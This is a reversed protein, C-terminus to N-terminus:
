GGTEVSFRAWMIGSEATQAPGGRSSWKFPAAARRRASRLSSGTGSRAEMDAIDAMREDDARGAGAFRHQQRQHRQLEAAVGAGLDEGEVEAARDAGRREGHAAVPVIEAARERFVRGLRDGQLRQRSDVIGGFAAPRRFPDGRDQRALLDADRRLGLIMEPRRERREGASRDGLARQGPERHQQLRLRQLAGQLGITEATGVAAQEVGLGLTEAFDLTWAKSVSPRIPM